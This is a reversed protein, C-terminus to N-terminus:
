VVSKRDLELPCQDDDIFARIDVINFATGRWRIGFIGQVRGDYLDENM